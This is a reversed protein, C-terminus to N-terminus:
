EHGVGVDGIRENGLKINGLSVVIRRQWRARLGLRTFEGLISEPPFYDYFSQKRVRAM